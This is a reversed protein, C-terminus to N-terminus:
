TESDDADTSGSKESRGRRSRGRIERARAQLDAFFDTEVIESVQQQRKAEDIEIKLQQIERKLSQERIYAELAAAALSSFSEMMQQLNTDFPIIQGTDPDTPDLLQMVGLVKGEPNKIPIVLMSRAAQYSDSEPQIATADFETVTSTDALNVANGSLAVHAVVDRENFGDGEVLPVAPYTIENQTTGGLAINQRNNRVIMLRLADEKERRLYLIGGNARCFDQAQVLMNELLRNFDKEASLEVGIPIVVELLDDARKKEKRVQQLTQSLQGTMSNFTEALIGIEDNSEVVARAGLDGERIINAVGTLRRIPGAINERFIISLAIGIILAVVGSLLIQQNTLLLRDRGTALERELLAQQDSTIGALLQQMDTTLPVTETSFLYLDQRWQDSELIEFMRDPLELFKDRNEAIKDLSTQQSPTLLNKRELLRDWAFQNNTLNAEYEGKFTRNRTTVYGRLGSLMSAFTGQFQAMDALAAVTEQTPPRRGQADILQNTEILVRGGLLIGDTALIKYAPERELQDDRLEFLKEPLASWKAFAVQLDTLRQRNEPSLNPSLRQLEALSSEFEARSRTYSDKFDQQGLALYGRVDGLMKLLSAQARASVLATPVRVTNTRNIDETASTSTLYSLAVVLLTLLIMVGFGILLRVGIPQNRLAKAWPLREVFTLVRSSSQQGTQATTTSTTNTTM